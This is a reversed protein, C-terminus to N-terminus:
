SGVSITLVNSFTTEAGGVIHGADSKACETDNENSM